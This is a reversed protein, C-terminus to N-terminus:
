NPLTFSWDPMDYSTTDGVDMVDDFELPKSQQQQHREFPNTGFGYQPDYQLPTRGPGSGPGYMPKMNPAYDIFATGFDQQAMYNTPKDDLQQQDFTGHGEDAGPGKGSFM